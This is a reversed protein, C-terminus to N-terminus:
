FIIAKLRDVFSSIELRKLLQEKAIFNENDMSELSRFCAVLADHEPECSIGVYNSNVWRAVSTEGGCIALVGCGALVYSSSKSPFAYRTVEDDIPLLAWRHHTVIESATAAPLYGLYEVQDYANALEELQPTYLGGGVFTFNLKGGSQLYSRIATMLLPMRQLRGANGCFVVDKLPEKDNRMDVHFSPNDLLRIPVKAQSRCRIFDKMDESLTILAAAHQMTYNDMWRLMGFIWPHLPVVINAAEPHIDQLHYYYEARFLTCYIYVIFPVLVPPDTAVYVKAPRAKMLSFLTWIMFYIAELARKVIGSSSDTHASCASICVGAGRGANNLAERLNERSQTIICVSHVESVLEAFRLLAEGIVQNHPWFSRNVIALDTKKGWM